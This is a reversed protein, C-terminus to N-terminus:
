EIVLDSFYAIVGRPGSYRHESSLRIQVTVLYASLDSQTFKKLSIHREFLAAHEPREIGSFRSFPEIPVWRNFSYEAIGNDKNASISEYGFTKLIEISELALQCALNEIKIDSTTRQSFSLLLMLAGGLVSFILAAALTEVLSFGTKGPISIRNNNSKEM